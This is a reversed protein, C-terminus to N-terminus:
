AEEAELLHQAEISQQFTQPFRKNLAATTRMSQQRKILLITIAAACSILLLSLLVGGISLIVVSTIGDFANTVFIEGSLNRTGNNPVSKLKLVKAFFDYLDVFNFPKIMHNKRIKPGRVMFFPHMESLIPDYGHVGFTSDPTVIFLFNYSYAAELIDQFGYNEKALVLIPPTRPNNKFHWHEPLESKKYVDFSNLVASAKKLSEYISDEFGENPIIHLVPSTECITYTNPELFRTVNVIDRAKVGLMGHDSLHVVTASHQLKHRKLEDDLYQAVKDMYVVRDHVQPSDPGYMHSYYDPQEFYLMILNAPKHRNTIWEMAKDIRKFMDYDASWSLTYTPKMNKYTSSHGPWMLVGSHRGHGALENLTWIPVTEENQTFIDDTIEIVKKLSPDYMSNGVVGHTETYMGTAITFHNPFTKTPFVNYVYEAFTGEKRLRFLNPTSNYNLYDYRFADYSVVILIPNRSISCALHILAFHILALIFM